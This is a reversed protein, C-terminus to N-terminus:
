LQVRGLRRGDARRAQGVAQVHSRGAKQAASRLRSDQEDLEAVRENSLKACFELVHKQCIRRRKDSLHAILRIRSLYNGQCSPCIGDSDAYFRMQNRVGHSVRKDAGLARENKFRPPPISERLSVFTACWLMEARTAAPILSAILVRTVGSCTRFGPLLLTLHAQCLSTGCGQLLMQIVSPLKLKLCLAGINPM